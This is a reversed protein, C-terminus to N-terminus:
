AGSRPPHSRSMGLQRMKRYLNAREVGLIRAAEDIRGNCRELTSRIYDREFSLRAERLSEHAAPIAGHGGLRVKALLDGLVIRQWQTARVVAELLERLETVNGPYPLWELLTLAPATLAKPKLNAAACIEGVLQRALAPIDDRRQRLAPLDLQLASLQAYLDTHLRGEDVWADIGPEVAAMPRLDLAIPGDSTVLAEGDRLLHWLKVQGRAPLDILHRLFLTGGRAQYMAGSEGVTELSASDLSPRRPGDALGFLELCVDRGGGACDFAVFPRSGDHGKDHILRALRERGTGREGRLVVGLRSATVAPLQSLVERMALSRMDAPEGGTTARVAPEAWGLDVGSM